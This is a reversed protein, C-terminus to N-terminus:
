RRLLVIGIIVPMVLPLADALDGALGGLLWLLSWGIALWGIWRALLGTRIIGLGIGAVALFHAREAVGFLSSTWTRLPEYVAPLSGTRAAEQAAWLEVNMRFASDVIVLITAVLILTFALIGLQEGGARLLLRTFLGFGLLQVIWALLFLLILLRFTKVYPAAQALSGQVMAPFGRIAGSAIMIILALLLILLSTVLLGGAVRRNTWFERNM